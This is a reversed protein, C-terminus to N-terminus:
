DSDSGIWKRLIHSIRRDRIKDCKPPDGGQNELLLLCKSVDFLREIYMEENVKDRLIDQSHRVFTVYADAVDMGPKREKGGCVRHHKQQIVETTVPDSDVAEAGFFGSYKQTQEPDPVDVYKSAAKVASTLELYFPIVLDEGGVLAKSNNGSFGLM